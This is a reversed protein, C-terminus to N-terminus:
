HITDSVTHQLPLLLPRNSRSFLTDGPDCPVYEVEGGSDGGFSPIPLWRDSSATSWLGPKTMRWFGCDADDEEVLPELEVMVAGFKKFEFIKSVWSDYENDGRRGPVAGEVPVLTWCM